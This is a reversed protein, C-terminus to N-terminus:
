FLGVTSWQQQDKNNNKKQRFAYGMIIDAKISGIKKLM